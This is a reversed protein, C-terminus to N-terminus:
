VLGSCDQQLSLTACSPYTWFPRPERALPRLVDLATSARAVCSAAQLVSAFWGPAPKRGIVRRSSPLHLTLTPM